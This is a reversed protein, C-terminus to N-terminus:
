SYISSRYYIISTSRLRIGTVPFNERLSNGYRRGMDFGMDGAGFLGGGYDGWEGVGRPSGM